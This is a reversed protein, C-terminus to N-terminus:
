RVRRVQIEPLAYGPLLADDESSAQVVTATPLPAGARAVDLRLTLAGPVDQIAVIRVQPQAGSVTRTQMAVTIGARNQVGLIGDGVLEVVVGGVPVEGGVVVEIVGPGPDDESCAGLALGACLVLALSRGVRRRRIM